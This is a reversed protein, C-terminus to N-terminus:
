AISENEVKIFLWAVNRAKVGWPLLSMGLKYVMRKWKTNPYSITRYTQELEFGYNKAIKKLINEAKKSQILWLHRHNVHKDVMDLTHSKIGNGILFDIRNHINEENPLTVFCYEKSNELAKIFLGTFDFTHELVNILVTIDSKNKDISELLTEYDRIYLVNNKSVEKYCGAGIDIGLYPTDYDIVENIIGDGCGIDLITKNKSIPKLIHNYYHIALRINGYGYINNRNFKTKGFKYM